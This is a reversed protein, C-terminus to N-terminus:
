RFGFLLVGIGAVFCISALLKNRIAAGPLRIKQWFIVGTIVTLLAAAFPVTWAHFATVGATGTKAAYLLLAGITWMAGSLGGVLHNGGTGALYDSYGIQGGELSINLFFFNLLLTAVIIGVTAMLVGGYAGIGLEETQAQALVPLVGAFALGALIGAVTGKTNASIAKPRGPVSSRATAPKVTKSVSAERSAKASAFALAAASVLIAFAAAPSLYHGPNLHLLGVVCGFVSFVLLTGNSLGMLAITGLFLMNGFAFITGAAFAMFESRRGAVLMSDSFGLDSGMTGFTYAAILASVVAGLAFDLSFLEFRWKPGAIKFLNPWLTFCLASLILLILASSWTEPLVM